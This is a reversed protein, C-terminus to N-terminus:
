KAGDEGRVRARAWLRLGKCLADASSRPAGGGATHGLVGQRRVRVGRAPEIQWIINLYFWDALIHESLVPLLLWLEFGRDTGPRHLIPAFFGCGRLLRRVVGHIRETDARRGSQMREADAKRGSQTREADARRGSQTREADM